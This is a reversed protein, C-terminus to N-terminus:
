RLSRKFGLILGKHLMCELFRKGDTALDGDVHPFHQGVWEWLERGCIAEFALREIALAFPASLEVFEVQKSELSRYTVLFYVGQNRTLKSPALRFVPYSFRDLRHTPNVVIPSYQLDGEKSCVVVPKEPMMAIGTELWEFLMLDELYPIRWRRAYQKQAVFRHLDRSQEAISTTGNTAQSFFAELLKSFRDKGLAEYVIPFASKLAQERPVGSKPVVSSSRTAGQKTSISMASEAFRVEMVREVHPTLSLEPPPPDEFFSAGRRRLKTMKKIPRPSADSPQSEKTGKGM